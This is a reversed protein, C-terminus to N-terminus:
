HITLKRYTPSDTLILVLDELFPMFHGYGIRMSGGKHLSNSVANSSFQMWRGIGPISGLLWSDHTSISVNTMEQCHVWERLIMQSPESLFSSDLWNWSWFCTIQNIVCSCNGGRAIIKHGCEWEPSYYWWVLPLAARLRALTDRQLELGM